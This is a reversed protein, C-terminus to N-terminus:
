GEDVELFLGGGEEFYRSGVAEAAEQMAEVFMRRVDPGHELRRFLGTGHDDGITLTLKLGRRKARVKRGDPLRVRIPKLLLDAYRVGIGSDDDFEPDSFTEAKPDIEALRFKM